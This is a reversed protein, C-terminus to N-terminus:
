EVEVAQISKSADAEMIADKLAEKKEADREKKYKYRFTTLFFYVLGLCMEFAFVFMRYADAFQTKEAQFIPIPSMINIMLLNNLDGFSIYALFTAQMMSKMSTPAEQYAFDMSSIAILLEGLCMIFYQPIQFLVHVRQPHLEVFIELIGSMTMALATFVFGVYMKRLPTVRIFKNVIPYVVRDLTPAMIIIIVPNLFALQDSSLQKSGFFSRNMLNAQYIWIASSLDSLSFFFLIPPLYMIVRLAARLDDIFEPGYVHEAHGLFNWKSLNKYQESNLNIIASVFCRFAKWLIFGGPKVHQYNFKGVAFVLTGVFLLVAPIMFAAWYSFYNRVIPTIIVSATSGINVSLYFITFFSTLLSMKSVRDGKRPAFQDAAFSSVSSKIGGTGLAILALGLIIGAIGVKDLISPIATVATVVGGLCYILSLLTITWYKGILM